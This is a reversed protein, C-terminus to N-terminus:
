LLSWHLHALLDRDTEIIRMLVPHRGIARVRQRGLCRHLGGGSVAPDVAVSSEGISFHAILTTDSLVKSRGYQQPFRRMLPSFFLKPPYSFSFSVQGTESGDVLLLEKQSAAVPDIKGADEIGYFPNTVYAYLITTLNEKVFEELSPLLVVNSVLQGEM